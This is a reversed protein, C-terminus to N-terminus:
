GFHSLDKTIEATQSGLKLLKDEELDNPDDFGHKKAKSPDLSKAFEILAANSLKKNISRICLESKFDILEQKNLKDSLICHINLRYDVPSEIRLEIGPFITKKLEGPFDGIYDLLEIYWDFTWYDMLCFVAVDSKNVVDVFVKMEKKKEETSMDTFPKTGNWHFSAPTHVHLDWKRWISGRPDNM